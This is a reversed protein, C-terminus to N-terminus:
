FLSLTKTLSLSLHAVFLMVAVPDVNAKVIAKTKIPVAFSGFFISALVAYFVGSAFNTDEIMHTRTTTTTFTNIVYCASTYRRYFLSFFVSELTEEKLFKWNSIKMESCCVKSVLFLLDFFFLSHTLSLIMDQKERADDPDEKQAKLVGRRSSPRERFCCMMVFFFFM